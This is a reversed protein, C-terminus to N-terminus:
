HGQFNWLQNLNEKTLFDSFLSFESFTFFLRSSCSALNCAITQHRWLCPVTFKIKGCNLEFSRRGNCLLVKFWGCPGNRRFFTAALFEHQKRCLNFYISMMKPTVRHKIVLTVSLILSPSKCILFYLEQHAYLPSRIIYLVSTILISVM